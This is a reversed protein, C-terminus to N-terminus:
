RRGSYLWHGVWGVVLAGLIAPMAYQLSWPVLVPGLDADVVPPVTQPAFMSSVQADLWQRMALQQDESLTLKVRPEQGVQEITPASGTVSAIWAAYGAATASAEADGTIAQTQLAVTSTDLLPTLDM